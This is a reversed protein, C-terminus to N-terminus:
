YDFLKLYKLVHNYTHLQLDVHIYLYLCAIKINIRVNNNLARSGIQNIESTTFHLKIYIEYTITYACRM